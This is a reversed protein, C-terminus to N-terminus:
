KQLIQKKEADLISQTNTVQQLISNLSNIMGVLIMGIQYNDLIIDCENLATNLLVITERVSIINNEVDILQNDVALYNENKM